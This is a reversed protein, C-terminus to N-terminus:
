RIEISEGRLVKITGDSKLLYIKTQDWPRLDSQYDYIHEKLQREIQCKILMNKNTKQLIKLIFKFDIKLINGNSEIQNSDRYKRDTVENWNEYISIQKKELFGKKLDKSYELPFLKQVKEGIIPISYGIDKYLYDHKDLGESEGEAYKLWSKYTFGFQNIEFREGDDEIPFAYDHHNKATQFARLLAESGKESVLASRINISETNEGMYRKYYGHPIIFSDDYFDTFGIEKDFKDENINDRWTKDFKDYEIKWFKEQLPIPDVLDSIWFKDWTISKSDLWHEWTDWEDRELQPENDLLDNAACFMAHYEFYISLDEIEPNSGHDNRTLSWDSERLNSRAYDDKSTNGTYGWKEVIYKDSIDAVKYGSVGFIDGLGNYWYPITDMTDFDFRWEKETRSYRSPQNIYEREQVKKLKTELCERISILEEQNFISSNHKYLNLCTRKIYFRILVHPLGDNNLENLFITNFEELLNPNENSIREIAIWLYLKSSIWYFIYNKNQFPYCDVENQQSLLIQLVNKNGFNLLQRISHIARWRLSKDPQGLLFRLLGAISENSDTPPILSENWIGDSENLRINQNWRSLSWDILQENEKKSLKLNTLQFSNYISEDSLFEIKEPIIKIIIEALEVDEINFMKALKKIRFINLYQDGFHKFWTLIVYDFKTKKWQRVAPHINWEELREKLATELSSFSLLSSDIDILADLHSIYEKSSCNSKIDSLFNNIEWRNSHKETQNIIQIISNELNKTSSIDIASLDINHKYKEKSFDNIYTSNEEKEVSERFDLYHKLDNVIGKEIFAGSKIEEYIVEIVSKNKVLTLNRFLTHIFKTKNTVDRKEDYKALILKLYDILDDSHYHYISLHFLASLVEVTSFGKDLSKHFLLTIYESIDIVDRHHWRCLITYTSSIDLNSIGSVAAHYPFHDYGQLKIHAYEVFRSFEYALRPSSEEIGLNTLEYLCKIKSTAEYDIENIANISENFFYKGTEDDINKGLLACKIYNEVMNQSTQSSNKILEDVENLLTLNINSFGELHILKELISFRYTLQNSKGSFSLNLKEILEKKNSLTIIEVLLSVLYNLREKSQYGNTYHFDYDKNYSECISEFEKAIEEANIVKCFVDSRLQYITVAYKFFSKFEKKDREISNRKKYDEIKDINEFKSPYIYELSLKKNKLSHKLCEAKFFLNMESIEDRDGYQSYFSPTRKIKSYTLHSLLGLITRENIKYNALIECFNVICLQFGQEFKINTKSLIKQFHMAIENLNFDIKKEFKFLKCILYIKVDIRFKNYKLWNSIQSSIDLSLINNTLYDGASLRVNKPTWRNISSIAEEVGFLRLVAEAQYAIDISSISFRNEYDNGDEKFNSHFRWSIWDRATKLHRLAEKKNKPNRSLYGALKLHFSGAWSKEDSNLKLRILSTDDNFKSVLDPYDTLLTTLTKDTKAEEAAILILKFFTLNDENDKCVKMALKTRSIYIERSRIPDVPVELYQKKLVISKLEEYRNSNYLIYGLNISAYSDTKAKSLFVDALNNKEKNDLFYEKRIYNEFDEDRFEFNNNQYILGSWIDLSIDELFPKKVDLIKSLYDIPVPRPLTILLQFFSDVKQKDSTGVKRKAEEITEYILNEVTKGKPKLSKIIEGIQQKKRGISNLQVRPIGYTYEHFEQVEELSISKFYSKIFKETENLSFPDIEIDIFNDPLNLIDKRFTRTTVILNLGKPIDIRLLDEVFNKEGNSNAETVCNDGADIIITITANPNRNKLVEIGRVIRKRIEKLYVENSENRDTLFNVGLRKALENSLHLLAYKHLHRKDEPNQYAGKGYCDFIICESYKPVDKQIQQTITSKGIGAKGHLCIPLSDNNNEITDLIGKIQERLIINEIKEFKQSVPFLNEISGSNFGLSAILDTVLIIRQNRSEPMMKNWVLQFLQNYQSKSSNSTDSIAKILELKLNYRSNVGCDEFDLLKFFDTFETLNLKSAKHLKKLSSINISLDTLVKNFSIKRKNTKLHQQINGIINLQNINFMRNSVLKITVKKLVLDRGYEDLLTKFITALRHILSGDYSGSKKSEYLKSFTYNETARLTSYKLQSIVVKSAKEFEENGYYETLDVGLLKEGTPDTKKALEKEIGEIYILKLSDKDFSLLEFTKKMTWLVHFDDGASSLDADPIQTITDKSM